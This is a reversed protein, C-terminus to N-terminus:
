KLVLIIMAILLALFIGVIILIGSKVFAAQDHDEKPPVLVRKKVNKLEQEPAEKDLVEESTETQVSDKSVTEQTYLVQSGKVIEFKGTTKNIRVELVEDTETNYFLGTEPSIKFQYPNVYKSTIFFKIKELLVGDVNDREIMEFLPILTIEEKKNNRMAQYVEDANALDDQSNASALDNQVDKFEDPLEEKTADTKLMTDDKKNLIYNQKDLETGTYNQMNLGAEEVKHYEDYAELLEKKKEESLIDKPIGKQKMQEIYKNFDEKSKFRDTKAVEELNLIVSNYYTQMDSQTNSNNNQTNADNNM